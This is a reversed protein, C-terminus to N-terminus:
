MRHSVESVGQTKHSAAHSGFDSGRFSAVDFSDDVFANEDPNRIARVDSSPPTYMSDAIEAEVMSYPSSSRLNRPREATLKMDNTHWAFDLKPAKQYATHDSQSLTLIVVNPLYNQSASVM